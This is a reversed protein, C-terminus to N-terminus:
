SAREKSVRCLYCKLPEAGTDPDYHGSGFLLNVNSERWGHDPGPREPFWWAHEAHVVRPDMGDWLRARLRARGYPSEVLVWDGEAIGLAGATEPHIEVRPDPHGQRLSPIQRGESHFFRLVKCGTMLILPYERATEPASLPSFPPERFVPLPEAGAHEMITSALEFKGTPTPFGEQEYKRYTMEGLIIGQDCFQEFSLGSPELLWELYSHRDAWPFAEHLGLRHALDFMVDRDDRVEGMRAVQRRALVCWVKHLSVVDDQELWTAAPLVLDALEATPTLFFDSVVTYELHEALCRHILEGQTATSLPNTGVLWMARVRYPDAAEVARWFTPPHTAPAFPFLGAGIMRGAMGEPLFEEGAVERNVLPSKPRVGTPPVWLAMGGPVDINGTLAMLILLARGTQFGNVSTDIGNGWQLCAPRSAAFARAAARIADAELWTLEAAWEPSFGAVHEALRDFGHCYGSVFESDYLSEGIIVNIMALALACESGPRLQLWRGAKEALATRRPDVVIVEEAQRLARALMAGCMGDAAGTATINCGWVLICRPMRGGRGYIDSVPLGGLTIQSAIVRPLYCLHGPNVFNPTGFANAFRMTFEIYPRGTGQALAFYEPGSKM